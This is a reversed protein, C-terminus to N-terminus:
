WWTQRPQKIVNNLAEQAIRYLEGEQAPSLHCTGSTEFRTEFGARAEVSELRSQLAATLGSKELIPPRLEFILLRMDSMAERELQNLEELHSRVIDLKGGELARRTANIFLSISYLTQAVSDHLERALHNREERAILMKAQEFLRADEILQAIDTSFINLLNMEENTIIRGEEHLELGLYGLIQERVKLPIFAIRQVGADEVHIGMPGDLSRLMDKSLIVPTGPGLNSNPQINEPLSLSSGPLDPQLSSSSHALINLHKNEQVYEGIFSDQTAFLHKIIDVITRYIETFDASQAIMQNVFNVAALWELRLQLERNATNLEKTRDDVLLELHLGL